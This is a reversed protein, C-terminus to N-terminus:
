RDWWAVFTFQLTHTDEPHQWPPGPPHLDSGWWWAARRASRSGWRVALRAGGPAAAPLAMRLVVASSEAARPM